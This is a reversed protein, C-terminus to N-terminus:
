DRAAAVRPVRELGDWSGPADVLTVAPKGNWTTRTIEYRRGEPRHRGWERHLTTYFRRAATEDDWITWWVLAPGAPTSFVAYRDGGWGEVAAAARSESDTLETLLVRMEFEGLNDEHLADSRVFRVAIPWDGDRYREPHLIQETSTPMRRGFPVTDPYETAFWRVFDAGGLYPFILGERLIRPTQNLVPMQEQQELIERRMNQWFDPMASLDRDPMLALLSSFVGQGEFVAQAALRRDNDGRDNLLSDLPVYQAQLAHVLEHAVIVRLQLKDADGVVYLTDTAPDYYGVVQETYLDVLLRQLDLTDPLLGFLRYALTLRDLEDAPFDTQMKHLLFRGVEESTRVSVHPPYKFSLGVAEEVAPAVERALQQVRDAFQMEGRAGCALSSLALVMLM